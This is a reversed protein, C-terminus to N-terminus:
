LGVKEFAARDSRNIEQGKILMTQEHGMGAAVVTDGKKAMRVAMEIAKDRDDERLFKFDGEGAAYGHSKTSINPSPNPHPVDKTIEKYIEGLDESRPDDATVIVEDAFKKAVVGMEPRKGKDREGTCGFVLIIKGKTEEKLSVLLQQLANPTHAFDVIMKIGLKNKVEEKRGPVGSFDKVVKAVTNTSVGVIEAVAKAAAINYKNYDGSLKSNIDRLDTKSYEVIKARNSIKRFYEFWESDKNLVAYKANKFLKAKAGAYNEMTGHYDLHERTLNTLVAIQTNYGVTKMQALRHSTTEMIVYKVGVDAMKKFWAQVVKADPNTVHLANEMVTEKGNLFYKIGVTTIMGVSLEAAKLMEYILWCTTTKGDTGTVGIVTLRKAPYGNILVWGWSRLWRIPQKLQETFSKQM